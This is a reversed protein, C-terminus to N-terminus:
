IGSKIGYLNNEKILYILPTIEYQNADVDLAIACHSGAEAYKKWSTFGFNSVVSNGYEKPNPPIPVGEKCGEFVQLLTKYKEEITLEAWNIKIFPPTSMFLKMTTLSTANM